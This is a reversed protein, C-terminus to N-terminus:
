FATDRAHLWALEVGKAFSAQLDPYATLFSAPDWWGWEGSAWRYGMHDALLHADQLQRVSVHCREGNNAATRSVAILMHGGIALVFETPTQLSLPYLCSSPKHM